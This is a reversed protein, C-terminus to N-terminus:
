IIDRISKRQDHQDLFYYYMLDGFKMIKPVLLTDSFQPIVFKSVRKLVLIWFKTWFNEVTGM